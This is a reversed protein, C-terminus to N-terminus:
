GNQRRTRRLWRRGRWGFLLLLASWFAPPRASSSASCSCGSSTDAPRPADQGGGGGSRGATNGGTIAGGTGGSGGNGGRGATAGGGAGGGAKAGAAGGSAPQGAPGAMGGNGDAGGQGGSGGAGASNGGAGGTGPPTVELVPKGACAAAAGGAVVTATQGVPVEASVLTVRRGNVLAESTTAPKDNLQLSVTGYVRAIWTIPGPGATHAVQTRGCGEHKITLAHAGVAVGSAQVWELDKPLRSLTRVVSNPADAELGMLGVMTNGIATYSVEPYDSRSAFVEKLRQWGEDVRGYPYVADPLYTAAEINIGNSAEQVFDLYADLRPGTDPLLKMPLFFSSEKGYNAVLGGQTLGRAFRGDKESWWETNFKKKLAAAKDDMAQADAAMGKARLLGAYAVYAQYQSGFADGSELLGEGNENYSAVGVFFDGSGGEDVIGNKNADHLEVFDKVAHGYFSWLTADNLYAKDGTWLYLEYAKQVLELTSPLERVFRDDDSYDKNFPTGDFTLSWLAYWKRPATASAALARMMALNEVDLGLFHAGIVQHATDRAYFAARNQGGAWYAPVGTNKQIWSKAMMDAWALDENFTSSSSTITVQAVAPAAVSLTLVTLAGIVYSRGILRPMHGHLCMHVSLPESKKTHWYPVALLRNPQTLEQSLAGPPDGRISM